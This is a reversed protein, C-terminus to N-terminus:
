DDCIYVHGKAVSLLRYHRNENTV